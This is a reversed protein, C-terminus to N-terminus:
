TARGGQPGTGDEMWSQKVKEEHLLSKKEQGARQSPESADEQPVPERLFEQLSLKESSPAETSADNAAQKAAESDDRPLM